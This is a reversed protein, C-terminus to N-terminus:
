GLELHLPDGGRGPVPRLDRCGPRTTRRTVSAPRQNGRRGPRAFMALGNPAGVGTPGDYGPLADCARDGVHPDGGHRPLRLRRHGLRAPEPQASRRARVTAGATAASPSTTCRSARLHGYLTLAPYTVGHAGGALGYMAAIIPSALSTGGVTFWGPAPRVAGCAYSDYIDLGTLYDAVASVDLGASPQRM